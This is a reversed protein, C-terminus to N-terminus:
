KSYYKKNNSRVYIKIKNLQIQNYLYIILPSAILMFLWILIMTKLSTYFLLISITFVLSIFGTIYSIYFLGLPGLFLTFLLGSLYCKHHIKIKKHNKLM